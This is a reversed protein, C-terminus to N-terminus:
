ESTNRSAALAIGVAERAAALREDGDLDTLERSLTRRESSVEPSLSKGKSGKPAKVEGVTVKGTKGKEYWSKASNALDEEIYEALERITAERGGSLKRYEAAILDGYAVAGAHNNAYFHATHPFNEADKVYGLFETEVSNRHQRIHEIQAQRQMEQQSQYFDERFKKLDAIEQQLARKEREANGEPTGDRALDMIFQEPDYGLDRIAEAPNKRLHALRAKEREVAQREAQYQQVQRQFEQREAEFKQREVEIESKVARKENALKARHKMLQKLSASSPDVEESDEDEDAVTKEAKAGERPLFKGDPGRRPTGSEETEEAKPKSLKPKYPDKEEAEKASKASSEGAEQIAKRVAAKAEAMTDEDVNSDLSDHQEVAKGGVFTVNEAANEVSM